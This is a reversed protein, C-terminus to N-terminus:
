RSARVIFPNSTAIPTPNGQVFYQVTYTGMTTMEIPPINGSTGGSINRTAVLISGRYLAVYDSTPRPQNTSWNIIISDGVRVGSPSVTVTASLPTPPASTTGGVPASWGSAGINNVAQAQYEFYTNPTLGCWPFSAQLVNVTYGNLTLRVNYSAAGSVPNIAINLCTPDANPTVSAITPTPPPQPSYNPNDIFIGSVVANWSALAANKVRITVQGKVNWVLYAGSAYSTVNQTNLVEGTTTDILEFQAFRVNNQDWDLAYIAVRHTQGDTFNLNISYQDYSNGIPTYWTAAIRDNPNAPKQLARIDTTSTTWTYTANGNIAIQAWSPLNPAIETIHFGESGYNGMWNGQTTNDRRVYLVNNASPTKKYCLPPASGTGKVFTYTHNNFSATSNITHTSNSGGVWQDFNVGDASKRFYRNNDTGTAETYIYNEDALSAPGTILGGGLAVWNFGNGDSVTYYIASDTGKVFAYIKNKFVSVAPDSTIIGGLSEFGSPCGSAPPPTPTPTPTPTGSIGYDETALMRSGAYVYEKSLQLTGNPPTLSENVSDGTQSSKEKLGVTEALGSLIGGKKESSFEGMAGLVGISLLALIGIALFKQKISSTRWLQSITEKNM